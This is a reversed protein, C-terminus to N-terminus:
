VEFTETPNFLRYTYEFNNPDYDNEFIWGIEFKVNDGTDDMCGIFHKHADEFDPFVLEIFDEDVIVLWLKLGEETNETREYAQNLLYNDYNTGM